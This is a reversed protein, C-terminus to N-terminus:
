LYCSDIAAVKCMNNGSLSYEYTVTTLLLWIVTYKYAVATLQLWRACVTIYGSLTYKYTVATLPLWSVCLTGLCPINM